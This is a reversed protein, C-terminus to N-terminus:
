FILLIIQMDSKSASPFKDRTNHLMNVFKPFGDKRRSPLSAYWSWLYNGGGGEKGEIFKALNGQNFIWIGPPTPFSSFRQLIQFNIKFIILLLLFHLLRVMNSDTEGM